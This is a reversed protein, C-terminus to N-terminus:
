KVELYHINMDYVVQRLAPEDKKFCYEKEIIEFMRIFDEEDFRKAYEMFPNIWGSETDPYARDCGKKGLPCQDCSVDFCLLKFIIYNTRLMTMVM